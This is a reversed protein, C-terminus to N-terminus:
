SRSPPEERVEIRVLRRDRRDFVATLRMTELRDLAIPWHKGAELIIDKGAWGLVVEVGSVGQLSAVDEDLVFVAVDGRAVDPPLDAIQGLRVPRRGRADASDRLQKLLSGLSPGRAAVHLLDENPAAPIDASLCGLLAEVAERAFEEPGQLCVLNELTEMEALEAPTLSEPDAELRRFLEEYRNFWAASSDNERM